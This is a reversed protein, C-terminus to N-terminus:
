EPKQFLLNVLHHSFTFFTDFHTWFSKWTFLTGFLLNVAHFADLYPTKEPVYKRANPSFLSVHPTDRRIWDSHPCINVLLFVRIQVPCKERLSKCPFYKLNLYFPNVPIFIEQPFSKPLIHGRILVGLTSQM